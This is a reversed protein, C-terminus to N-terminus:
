LQRVIERVLRFKHRHAITFVNARSIGLSSAVEAAPLNQCFYLDLLQLERPPLDRALALMARIVAERFEGDPIPTTPSNPMAPEDHVDQGPCSESLALTTPERRRSHFRNAIRWRVLNFLWRRFSGTRDTTRFSLLSSTLEKFVDQTLDQADHHSFGARRAIGLIIERYKRDFEIWRPSDPSQIIAALLSTCTRNSPDLSTINGM